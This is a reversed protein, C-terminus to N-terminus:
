QGVLTRALQNFLDLTPQSPTRNVEIKGQLLRTNSFQQGRRSRTENIGKRFLFHLKEVFQTQKLSSHIKTLNLSGPDYLLGQGLPYLLM